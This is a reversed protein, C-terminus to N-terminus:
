SLQYLLPNKIRLDYTRSRCPAGCPEPDQGFPGVGSGRRGPSAEPSHGRRRRPANGAGDREGHEKPDVGEPWIVKKVEHRGVFPLGSHVHPHGLKRMKKGTSVMSEDLTGEIGLGSNLLLIAKGPRLRGHLRGNDPTSPLPQERQAEPPPEPDTRGPSERPAHKTATGRWGVTAIALAGVVAVAVGLAAIGRTLRM